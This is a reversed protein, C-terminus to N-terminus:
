GSREQDWDDASQEQLCNDCAFENGDKDFYITQCEEGCCPCFVPPPDPPGFMEAERIWPADAIM